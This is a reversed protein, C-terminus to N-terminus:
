CARTRRAARPRVRDAPAPRDLAGRRARRGVDRLGRAAGRHVRRRRGRPRRRAGGRLERRAPRLRHQRPDLRRVPLGGAARHRAPPAALAGARRAPRPRRHPDRGRTPDYFRALLKVLTSKGAGTHGVLAVTQGAAVSLDIGHLVEAGQATASTCTASSSPARSRRCRGPARPTACSPSRHGDRRLDQRAGREGGPVHQLAALAGPDPRLLEGPLAHVRVAHRDHDRRRLLPLRRLRARDGDRGLRAPRRVPLVLREAAGHPLEGARYGDSIEGFASPTARARAPVGARRARGRPGRGADRDRRRAARAHAPLRAGLLRPLADDRDGDAPLGHADRARAALRPLAARGGHRVAHLTNQVSSYLGDTVLEELADVDNTLRSILWGARNREFYGLELTQIHAFLDRRLDALVRQGVWASLYTQAISAVWGLLAAAVFALTWFVLAQRDGRCSATTSRSSPRSRRPSGSRPASSCRSRLCSRRARPVPARAHLAPRLRAFTRRWSFKTGEPALAGIPRMRVSVLDAEAPADEDLSVFTRDVLGHRWIEAYVPNTDVLDDHRGRAAVRGDELVVIEDALAITSLRHAIIITTRGEMVTQSRSRIRAETTADVSATADDLILVRPDVLLARAISLRQRQGGSLTLGREGVIRTTATRCRRSSSTRRRGARRRSSRRATAGPAGYAINEAVTTSFLFTDEAVTAIAGRLDALRLERVDVGDLVVRGAQPDYFRPVLSTLTTKGSGTRGIVAITTGAAVELDLDRLVPRDADYGFTVGEFRLEGGGAPLELPAPPDTIESREDLVQFIREGSAIARQYQGIWMGIMRLPWILMALYLNYPFFGGLSLKGDIVLLGGVLIIVAFALQPLLDLLPRYRAQIRASDLEREFVRETREAFRESEADEQAFAKVVRM